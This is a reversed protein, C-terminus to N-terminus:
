LLPDWDATRSTGTRDAEIRKFHQEIEELTLGKTEPVYVKVFNISRVTGLIVNLICRNPAMDNRSLSVYVYICICQM